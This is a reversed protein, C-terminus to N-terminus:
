ESYPKKLMYKYNTQSAINNKHYSKLQQFVSFTIKGTFAKRHREALKLLYKNAVDKVQNKNVQLTNLYHENYHM